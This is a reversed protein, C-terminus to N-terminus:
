VMLEKDLRSHLVCKLYNLVTFGDLDLKYGNEISVRYGIVERDQSDRKGGQVASVGSRQTHHVEGRSFVVPEDVGSAFTKGNLLHVGFGFAFATDDLRTSSGIFMVKMTMFVCVLFFRTKILELLSGVDLSVDLHDFLVTNTGRSKELNLGDDLGVGWEGGAEGTTGLFGGVVNTREEGGDRGDVFPIESGGDNKLVEAEVRCVRRGGVQVVEINPKVGVRGDILNSINRDDQITGLTSTKAVDSSETPVLLGGVRSDGTSPTFSNPVGGVVDDDGGVLESM